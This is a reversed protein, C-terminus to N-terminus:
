EEKPGGADEGEALRVAKEGPKKVAKEPSKKRRKPKVAEPLDARKARGSLFWSEALSDPIEVEQGAKVDMGNLRSHRLVRVKM